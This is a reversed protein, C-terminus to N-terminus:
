LARRLRGAAHPGRFGTGTGYSSGAGVAPRNRHSMYIRRPTYTRRFLFCIDHRVFARSRSMPRVQGSLKLGSRPGTRGMTIQRRPDTTRRKKGALCFSTDIGRSKRSNHLAVRRVSQPIRVLGEPGVYHGKERIVETGVANM